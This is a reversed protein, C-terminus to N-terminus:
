REPMNKVARLGSRTVNMMDMIKDCPDAEGEGDRLRWAAAGNGPYIVPIRAGRNGERPLPIGEEGHHPGPRGRASKGTPPKFVRSTRGGKRM